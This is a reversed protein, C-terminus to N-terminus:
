VGLLALSELDEIAAVHRASMAQVRESTQMVPPTVAWLFGHLAHRRYAAFCEDADLEPGGAAALTERYHGLLDREYARRDDVTLAGTIFYAVDYSWPAICVGQWDIFTVKGASSIHTNGLHADGHALAGEHADEYAWLAEFARLIRARHDLSAPVQPSEPQARHHDWFGESLLMNAASRVSSSGVSLWPALSTATGWSAAHWQAQMELGSAVEDPTAPECPEGFRGKRSRLDEMIVVGQATHDDVGCYYTRPLAVPLKAAIEGFFRAELRYADNAEGLGRLREDFGGKVCLAAPIEADRDVFHVDILVKTATGWVIEDTQVSEVDTGLARSLWEATLDDTTMPLSDSLVVSMAERRSDDDVSPTPAGLPDVSTIPLRSRM